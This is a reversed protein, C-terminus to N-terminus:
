KLKHAVSSSVSLHVGGDRTSRTVPAYSSQSATYSREDRCPEPHNGLLVKEYFPLGYLYTSLWFGHWMCTSPGRLHMYM